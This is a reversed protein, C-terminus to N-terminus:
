QSVLSWQFRHDAYFRDQRPDYSYDAGADLVDLGRAFVYDIRKKLCHNAGHRAYISDDYGNGTLAKWFPAEQCAEKERPADVCRRNNFDGAIVQGNKNPYREELHRAVRKSWRGKLEFATEEDVLRSSPVFHVSSVALRARKEGDPAKERVSVYAQYKDKIDDNSAEAPSYSTRLFGGPDPQGDKVGREMTATNILIATDKTGGAVNADDPPRVIVAYPQGLTETLIRAVADASLGNVEQLTLVDPAYPMQQRLRRAFARMDSPDAVDAPDFAEYLNADLVLVQGRPSEPLPQRNGAGPGRRAPAECPAETAASLAAFPSTEPLCEQAHVSSAMLALVASLSCSLTRM